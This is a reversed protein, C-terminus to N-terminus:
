CKRLTNMLEKVGEIIEKGRRLAIQKQQADMEGIQVETFWSTGERSGLITASRGLKKLIAPTRPRGRGKTKPTQALRDAVIERLQRCTLESTAAHNALMEVADPDRIPLLTQQFSPPLARFAKANEPLNRVMIAIGVANNLWTKSVPLDATGCKAALARYSASKHPNRAKALDARSGFFRDLVYQGVEEAGKRLTSAVKASIWAAAEHIPNSDM